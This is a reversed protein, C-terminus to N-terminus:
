PRILVPKQRGGHCTICGIMPNSDPLNRMARLDTNVRTVLALMDRAVDKNPKQDSAWQGPVHCFGCSVGLGHGFGDNMIELFRGAPVSKLVKVNQFVSEAPAREKGAIRQLMGAVARARLAAFSDVPAAVATTQVPAPGSAAPAASSTTGGCAAALFGITTVAYAPRM